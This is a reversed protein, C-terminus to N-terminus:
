LGLGGCPAAFLSRNWAEERGLEKAGPLSILYQERLNAWVNEGYSLEFVNKLKCFLALQPAEMWNMRLSATAPPKEGWALRVITDVSNKLFKEYVSSEGLTGVCELSVLKARDLAERIASFFEYCGGLSNAQLCVGKLREFRPTQSMPRSNDKVLFGNMEKEFAKVQQGCVTIPPDNLVILLIGVAMVILALTHKPLSMLFDVM